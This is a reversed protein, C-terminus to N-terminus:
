ASKAAWVARPRNTSSDSTASATRNRTEGEARFMVPCSRGTSAPQSTHRGEAGPPWRTIAVRGCNVADPLAGRQHEPALPLGALAAVTVRQEGAAILMTAIGLGQLPGMTALQSFVGADDESTYGIRLRAAPQGAPARVM